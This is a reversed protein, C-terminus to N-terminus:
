RGEERGGGVPKKYRSIWGGHNRSAEGLETVRRAQSHQWCVRKSEELLFDGIRV